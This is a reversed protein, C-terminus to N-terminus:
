FICVSMGRKKQEVKKRKKFFKLLILCLNTLKDVQIFTGIRLFHTCPWHKIINSISHLIYLVYMCVWIHINNYIPFIWFHAWKRLKIEIGCPFFGTVNHRSPCTRYDEKQRERGDSAIGHGAATIVSHVFWGGRETQHRMLDSAREVAVKMCKRSKQKTWILRNQQWLSIYNNPEFSIEWSCVNKICRGCPHM